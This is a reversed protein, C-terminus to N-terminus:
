RKFQMKLTTSWSDGPQLTAAAPKEDWNKSGGEWSPLSHWPEICIFQPAGPKSWILTYPFDGIDCVVARGSDKEYIGLTQATLGAMCISDNDFLQETIPINSLNGGISYCDGHVLGKPLCSICVPSQPTDFRLEYDSYSHKEDFPIAFGPHYGIGFRLPQAGSNEVTLSHHLTDGKLEFTSFLRFAFPWSQRTQDSDFLCLVLKHAEQLYLAHELNRAFGHQASPYAQGDVEITNDVVKGCHPFLIPGHWGWVAPDAQWIHEAGDSKCIVSAVQAGKTTVTVKLSENEITYLM